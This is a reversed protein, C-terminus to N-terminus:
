SFHGFPAAEGRERHAGSERLSSLPRLGKLSFGAFFVAARCDARNPFTLAAPFTLILGDLLSALLRAVFTLPNSVSCLHRPKEANLKDFRM